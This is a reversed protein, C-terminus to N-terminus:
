PGAKKELRMSVEWTDSASDRRCSELSLPREASSCVLVAFFSAVTCGPVGSGGRGDGNGCPCEFSPAGLVVKVSDESHAFRMGRALGFTETVVGPLSADLSAFTPKVVGTERSFLEALARGPPTIGPGGPKGNALPEVLVGPVGPGVPVYEFASSERSALDSISRETSSLIADLVSPQVKRKPESFLLVVAALFSVISDIEFVVLGTFYSALLLVVTLGVFGVGAVWSKRGVSQTLSAWTGAPTPTWTKGAKPGAPPRNRRGRVYVVSVLTIAVAMGGLTLLIFTLHPISM